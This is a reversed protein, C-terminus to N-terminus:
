ELREAKAQSGNREKDVEAVIRNRTAVLKDFTERQGEEVKRGHCLQVKNREGASKREREREIDGRKRERERKRTSSKRDRRWNSVCAPNRPQTPSVAGEQESKVGDKGSDV